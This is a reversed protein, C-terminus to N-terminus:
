HLQINLGSDNQVHSYLLTSTVANAKWKVKNDSLEREQVSFVYTARWQM